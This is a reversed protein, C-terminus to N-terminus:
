RPFSDRAFRRVGAAHSSCAHRKATGHGQRRCTAAVQVIATRNLYFEREKGHFGVKVKLNLRSGPAVPASGSQLLDSEWIPNPTACGTECSCGLGCAGCDNTLLVASNNSYTVRAGPGLICTTSSKGCQEANFRSNILAINDASFTLSVEIQVDLPNGIPILRIHAPTKRADSYIKGEQLCISNQSPFENLGGLMLDLAQVRDMDVRPPLSIQRGTEVDLLRFTAGTESLSMVTVHHVHGALVNGEKVKAGTAGVVLYHIGDLVGDDQCYHFHGAIVARVPHRRLMDHVSAWYTWNYWLPQHTFVIIGASDHHRALDEALWTSQQEKLQALYVDGWRPDTDLHEVSDLAIFHYKGVDFSYYLRSKAAQQKEGYLRQFESEFKRDPSDPLFCGPDVDHDGPTLYWPANLQELIRTARDFAQQYDRITEGPTESEVLDGVHLVLKVRQTNLLGIAKSLKEYPDCCPDAGTQDGIIDVKIEGDPRPSPRNCATLLALISGVLAIRSWIGSARM